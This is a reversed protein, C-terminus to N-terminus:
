SRPARSTSSTSYSWTGRREPALPGDSLDALASVSSAAGITVRDGAASVGDLGARHLLLARAPSIRGATIEPLLITGGGFVTLGEGDGFLSAAEAASTPVLVDATM